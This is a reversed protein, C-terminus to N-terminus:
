SENSFIKHNILSISYSWYPQHWDWPRGLTGERYLYSITIGNNSTTNIKECRLWLLGWSSCQTVISHISSTLIHRFPLWKTCYGFIKFQKWSCLKKRLLKLKQHRSVTRELFSSIWLLAPWFNIACCFCLNCNITFFICCM